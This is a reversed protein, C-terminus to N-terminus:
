NANYNDIRWLLNRVRSVHWCGDRRNRMGCAKLEAALARLNTHGQRQLEEVVLALAAAPMPM